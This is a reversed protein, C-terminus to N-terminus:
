QSGRKAWYHTFGNVCTAVQRVISSPVIFALRCPCTWLRISFSKWTYVVLSFRFCHNWWFKLKLCKRCSFGSKFVLCWMLIWLTLAVGIINQPSWAINIQLESKWAFLFTIYNFHWCKFLYIFLYFLKVNGVCMSDINTEVEIDPKLSLAHM